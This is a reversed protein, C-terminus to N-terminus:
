VSVRLFRAPTGRSAVTYEGLAAPLLVLEGRRLPLTEQGEVRIESTGDLGVLIRFSAKGGEQTTAVEPDGEQLLLSEFRFKDCELLRNVGPQQHDGLRTLPCSIPAAESVALAEELHLDRPLGDLGVRGWDYIRFTIDSTQQVELLVIGAGLAHVTGAPVFIVDGACVPVWRFLRRVEEESLATGQAARVRAVVEELGIGPGLGHVVEAGDEAELILWAETKGRSSVDGLRGGAARIDEDSPHVQISLHKRADLLKLLLPFDGDAAALEPGLLAERHAQLLESLLRGAYPGSAVRSSSDRVDSIEWSEGYPNGTPLVKDFAELRRGGWVREVLLPTWRIPHPLFAEAEGPGAPKTSGAPKVAPRADPTKFEPAESGSSASTTSM